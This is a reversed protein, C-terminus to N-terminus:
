WLVGIYLAQLPAAAVMRHRAQWGVENREDGGSVNAPFIAILLAILCIGSVSRVECCCDM